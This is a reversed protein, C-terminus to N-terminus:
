PLQPRQASRPDRGLNAYAQEGEFTAAPVYERRLIAMEVFDQWGDPYLEAERRVGEQRFGCARYCRIARDNSALVELEVRHVGLESFAWRVVLRTVERGIGKGRLRAVFLGIWFAARHQDPNVRLGTGGICRGDYEVAWAYSGPESVLFSAAVHERAPFRRGDWDRRWTSGYADEEAPDIPERLRDEIDSDRRGRLIVQVGPLTPLPPLTLRDPMVDPM